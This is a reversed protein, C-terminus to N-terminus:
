FNAFARELEKPSKNWIAALQQTAPIPYIEEEGRAIGLVIGKATDAPTAKHPVPIHRVMDTDIIGPMAALVAINKARLSGRLAQTMSYAAAKSAAYGGISPMSAHAAISLINVITGHARELAPVFARTVNLTGRVNTRFDADLDADSAGLLDHAKLVGANNVLLSVDAATAAAAAISEGRTVDLAIPVVRERPVTAARSAAYIKAAGAELFAEVLAAGLGRNAGTVLVVSGELKM